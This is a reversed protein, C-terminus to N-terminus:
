QRRDRDNGGQRQPVTAAAPEFQLRFPGGVCCWAMREVASAM